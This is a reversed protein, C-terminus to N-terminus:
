ANEKKAENVFDKLTNFRNDIWFKASTESIIKEFVSKGFEFFDKQAQTLEHTRAYDAVAFFQDVVSQRISEAWAIQKPTGTMVPLKIATVTMM